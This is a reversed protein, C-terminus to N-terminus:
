GNEGTRSLLAYSIQGSIANSTDAQFSLSDGEELILANNVADDTSNASIKTNFFKYSTTESIDTFNFNVLVESVTDNVVKIEKIITVTSNSITLVTTLNSTSLDYGKIKYSIAM